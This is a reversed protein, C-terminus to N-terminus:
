GYLQKNNIYIIHNPTRLGYYFFQLNLMSIIFIFLILVFIIIIFLFHKDNIINWKFEKEESLNNLSRFFFTIKVLNHCIIRITRMRSMISYYYDTEHFYDWTEGFKKILCGSRAIQYDVKMMRNKEATDLDLDNTTREFSM